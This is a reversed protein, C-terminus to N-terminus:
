ASKFNRNIHTFAPHLRIKGMKVGSCLTVIYCWCCVQTVIQLRTYDQKTTDCARRSFVYGKRATITNFSLLIVTTALISPKIHLYENDSDNINLLLPLCGSRSQSHHCTYCVNIQHKPIWMSAIDSLLAWPHTWESKMLIENWAFYLDSLSNRAPGHLYFGTCFKHSANKSM